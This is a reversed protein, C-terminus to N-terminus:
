DTEKLVLRRLEGMRVPKTLVLDMGCGMAEQRSEESGLGTLAIVKCRGTGARERGESREKDNRNKELARIERTADFGNMVPMSVDMFVLDFPRTETMFAQVAELGNVATHYTCGLRAIYTTLIKLNIVNDDVLLV